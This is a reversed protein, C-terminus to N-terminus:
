LGADGTHKRIAELLALVYRHSGAPRTMPFGYAVGCLLDMFLDGISWHDARVGNLRYLLEIDEAYDVVRASLVDGEADLVVALTYTATWEVPPM